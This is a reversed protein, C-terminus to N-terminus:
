YSIYIYMNIIIIIIAKSHSWGAKKNNMFFELIEWIHWTSTANFHFRLFKLGLPFISVSTQLLFATLM